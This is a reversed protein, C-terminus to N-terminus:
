VFTIKPQKREPVRYFKVDPYGVMMPYHHPYNEPVGMETKISPISMMAGHLLGAWCTGLGITPAFLELYSLAITLDVTGNVAEPPTMATILTPAGRLVTDFGADWGEVVKLVYPMAAVVAPDKALQRLWGATLEGLRKMLSKDNIVLWEIPQRNGGTPAYRAMEILAQSKEKEVPKNRYRRISRRSRLFQGAQEANIALDKRIAPSKERPIMKHDLAGHPCVAVCHGCLLCMEDGDEVLAPFGGAPLQIIVAPCEQECFSDKKCKSEDITILGM